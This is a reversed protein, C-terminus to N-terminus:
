KGTLKRLVDINQQDKSRAISLLKATDNFRQLFSWGEEMELFIRDIAAIREDDSM